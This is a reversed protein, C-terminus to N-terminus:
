VTAKYNLLNRPLISTQLVNNISVGKLGYQKFTQFRRFRLSPMNSISSLAAAPFFILQLYNM